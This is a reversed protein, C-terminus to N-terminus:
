GSFLYRKSAVLSLISSRDEQSITHICRTPHLPRSNTLQSLNILPTPSETRLFPPNM